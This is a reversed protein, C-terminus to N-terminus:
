GGREVVVETETVADEFEEIGDVVFCVGGVETVFAVV